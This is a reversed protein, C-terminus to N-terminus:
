NNLTLLRHTQTHASYSARRTCHVMVKPSLTNPPPPIFAIIIEDDAQQVSVGPRRAIRHLQTTSKSFSHNHTVKYMLQFQLTSRFYSVILAFPNHYVYEQIRAIRLVTIWRASRFRPFGFPQLFIVNGDIYPQLIVYKIVYLCVSAFYQASTKHKGRRDHSMFNDEETFMKEKMRQLNPIQCRHLKVLLSIKLLWRAMTQLFAVLGSSKRESFTVVQISSNQPMRQQFATVLDVDTFGWM